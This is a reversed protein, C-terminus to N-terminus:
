SNQPSNGRTRTKKASPVREKSRSAPKPSGKNVFYGM